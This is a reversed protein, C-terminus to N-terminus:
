GKENEFLCSVLPSLFECRREAAKLDHLAHKLRTEADVRRLGEHLKGMMFGSAVYLVSVFLIAVLEFM